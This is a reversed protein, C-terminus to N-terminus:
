GLQLDGAEFMALVQDRADDPTIASTDVVFPEYQGLQDFQRHMTRVVSEPAPADGRHCARAVGTAVDCRLVVYHLDIKDGLVSRAATQAEELFWPGYIGDLVTTYGAGAYGAAAQVSIRTVHINQENAQVTSPDLWGGAIYRFFHDGLVHASKSWHQALLAGVTTKGSGPPGSVIILPAAM